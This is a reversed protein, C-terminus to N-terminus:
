CPYADPVGEQADELKKMPVGKQEAATPIWGYPQEDYPDDPDM